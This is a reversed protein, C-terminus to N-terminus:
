VDYENDYYDLGDYAYDEEGGEIYRDDGYLGAEEELAIERLAEDAPEIDDLAPLGGEGDLFSMIAERNQSTRTPRHGHIGAASSSRRGVIASVKAKRYDDLNVVKGM